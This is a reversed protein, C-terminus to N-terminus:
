SVTPGIRAQVHDRALPRLQDVKREPEKAGLGLSLVGDPIRYGPWGGACAPVHATVKPPFREPWTALPAKILPSLLTPM